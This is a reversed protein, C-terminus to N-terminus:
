STVETPKVTVSTVFGLAQGTVRIRHERSGKLNDDARM